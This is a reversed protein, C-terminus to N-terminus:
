ACYTFPMSLDIREKYTESATMCECQKNNNTTIIMDKFLVLLVAWQGNGM